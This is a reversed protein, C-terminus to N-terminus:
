SCVGRNYESCQRRRKAETKGSKVLEQKKKEIYPGVDEGWYNPDWRTSPLLSANRRFNEDYTLAATEGALTHARRVHALYAVLDMARRLYAVCVVGMFVQFGDLWNDFTREARPTRYKRKGFPLKKEGKGTLKTPPLLTFIDVYDGNLIKNRKKQSMKLILSSVEKRRQRRTSGKPNGKGGQAESSAQNTNAAAPAIQPALQEAESGSSSGEETSSHQTPQEQFIRPISVDQSLSNSSAGKAPANGKSTGKAPAKSKSAGLSPKKSTVSQSRTPPRGPAPNDPLVGGSTSAPTGPHEQSGSFTDPIVDQSPEPAPLALVRPRCQRYFTKFATFFQAFAQPDCPMTPFQTGGSSTSPSQQNGESAM